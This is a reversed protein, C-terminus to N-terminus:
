SSRYLEHRTIYDNVPPPVLDDIPQGATVKARIVTSSVNVLPTKLVGRGLRIAQERSFHHTLNRLVEDLRQDWPSRVATVITALDVVEEAHYWLHLDALMDAGIIWVLEPETGAQRRLELLTDRTYSPGPRDIEIRSIALQPQGAVALELMALRDAASAIAGGPKHPANAAPIFTVRDVGLHERVARAIALHGNHVPDFTGGMYALRPKM